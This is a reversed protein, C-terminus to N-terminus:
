REHQATDDRRTQGKGPLHEASSSPASAATLVAAAVAAPLALDTAPAAAPAPARSATTRLRALEAGILDRVRERLAPLDAATLGATPIPALVMAVADAEGFWRSGKPRCRDTGEIVM